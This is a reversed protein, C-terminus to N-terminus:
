GRGMAGTGDSFSFMGKFVMNVKEIPVVTSKLM